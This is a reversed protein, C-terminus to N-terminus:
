VLAYIPTVHRLDLGQTIRSVWAKRDHKDSSRVGKMVLTVTTRTHTYRVKSRLGITLKAAKVAAGRDLRWHRCRTPLALAGCCM